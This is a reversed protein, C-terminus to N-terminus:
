IQDAHRFHKVKLRHLKKFGRGCTNCKHTDEQEHVFRIHSALSLKNSLTKDCHPCTAPEATHIKM